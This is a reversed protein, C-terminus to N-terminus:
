SGLSDSSCVCVGRCRELREKGKGEVQCTRIRELWYTWLIAAFFKSGRELRSAGFMGFMGDGMLVYGNVLIEWFSGGREWIIM